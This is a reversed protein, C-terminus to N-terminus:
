MSTSSSIADQIWIGDQYCTCLVQHPFELLNWARMGGSTPGRQRKWKFQRFWARQDSCVRTAGPLRSEAGSSADHRGSHSPNTLRVTLSM